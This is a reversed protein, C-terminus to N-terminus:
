LKLSITPPPNLPSIPIDPNYAVSKLNSSPYPKSYGPKIYKRNAPNEDQLLLNLQGPIACPVGTIVMKKNGDPTFQLSEPSRAALDSRQADTLGNAPNQVNFYQTADKPDNIIRPPPLQNAILAFMDASTNYVHVTANPNAVYIINASPGQYKFYPPNSANLDGVRVFNKPAEYLVLGPATPNTDSTLNQFNTAGYFNSNLSTLSTNYQDSSINSNTLSSQIKNNFPIARIAKEISSGVIGNEADFASVTVDGKSNAFQWDSISDLHTTQVDLINAFTGTAHISAPFNVWIGTVPDQIPPHFSKVQTLNQILGSRSWNILSENLVQTGTGFINSTNKNVTSYFDYAINSLDVACNTTLTAYTSNAITKIVGLLTPGPQTSPDFIQYGLDLQNLFDTGVGTLVNSVTSTSITGNGHPTLANYTIPAQTYTQYHYNTSDIDSSISAAASAFLEVHDGYNYRVRGVYSNTITRLVFNNGLLGIDGTVTISGSTARVNGSGALNGSFYATVPNALASQGTGINSIINIAM